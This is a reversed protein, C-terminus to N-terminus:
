PGNGVGNQETDECIEDSDGNGVMNHRGGDLVEEEEFDEYKEAEEEEVEFKMCEEIKWLVNGLVAEKGQEKELEDLHM